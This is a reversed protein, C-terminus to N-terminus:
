DQCREEKIWALSAAVHSRLRTNGSLHSKQRIYEKSKEPSKKKNYFAICTCLFCKFHLHVCECATFLSGGTYNGDLELALGM